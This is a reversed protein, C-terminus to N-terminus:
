GIRACIAMTRSESGRLIILFSHKPLNLVVCPWNGDKRRGGNALSAALDGLLKRQALRHRLRVQCVIEQEQRLLGKRVEVHGVIWGVAVCTRSIRRYLMAMTGSHWWLTYAMKIASPTMVAFPQSGVIRGTTPGGCNAFTLLTYLSRYWIPFFFVIWYWGPDGISWEGMINPITNSCHQCKNVLWWIDNTSFVM